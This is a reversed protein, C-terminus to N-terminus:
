DFKDHGKSDKAAAGIPHPMLQLDFFEDNDFNGLDARHPLDRVIGVACKYGGVCVLRHYRWEQAAKTLALAIGVTLGSFLGVVAGIPGGAALGVVLGTLAGFLAGPAVGYILAIGAIDSERFPTDGATHNYCQTYKRAM